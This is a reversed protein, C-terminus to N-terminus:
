THLAASIHSNGSRDGVSAVVDEEWIETTGVVPDSKSENQLQRLVRFHGGCNDV